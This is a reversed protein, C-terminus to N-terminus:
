PMETIQQSQFLLLFTYIKGNWIERPLHAAFWMVDGAPMQWWFQYERLLAILKEGIEPSQEKVELIAKLVDANCKTLLNDM